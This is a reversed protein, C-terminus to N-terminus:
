LVKQLTILKQGLEQSIVDIGELQHDSLSPPLDTSGAAASSTGSLVSATEWESGATDPATLGQAVTRFMQAMESNNGSRVITEEASCPEFLESASYGPFMRELIRCHDPYPLGKLSGSLWRHLQARSPWSGVLRSDITQAAKDYEDCFTRYTQWHRQQLLAKLRIIQRPMGFMEM